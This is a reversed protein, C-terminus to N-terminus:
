VDKSCAFSQHPWYEKKDVILKEVIIIKCRYSGPERMLIPPSPVNSAPWIIRPGFFSTGPLEHKDAMGVRLIVLNGIPEARPQGCLAILDPRVCCAKDASLYNPIRYLICNPAM